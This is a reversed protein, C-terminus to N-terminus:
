QKTENTIENETSKTYLIAEIGIAANEIKDTIRYLRNNSIEFAM